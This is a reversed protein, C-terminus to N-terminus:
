ENDALEVEKELLKCIVENFEKKIKLDDQVALEDYIKELRIIKLRMKCVYANYKKRMEPSEYVVPRGRPKQYPALDTDYPIYDSDTM